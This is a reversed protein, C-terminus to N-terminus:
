NKQIEYDINTIEKVHDNGNNDIFIGQSINEVPFIRSLSMGKAMKFTKGISPSSSYITNKYCNYLDDGKPDIMVGIANMDGIALSRNGFSYDDNGKYDIFIGASLDRGSGIIQTLKSKDSNINYEDDGAKDIFNALSFHAAYGQSHSLANFEDDGSNDNFIGLGFYYSAGQSFSNAFYIDNGSADVFIGLGGALNQGDTAEAWRGKSSGQIFSPLDNKQENKTNYCDNGNSDILCGIGLTGGFAQSYSKCYYKDDGTLDILTASGFFAAGQSYNHNCTYIDNGCYDYLISTGFLSFALGANESFYEDSGSLDILASYGLVGAVLFGENNLYKDDGNFDIVIGITRNISITSAINGFYLDDGGLEVVILCNDKITDNKTGNILIKGHKTNIQCTSFDFKFDANKYKLFANLKESILRSAYSLKKLDIDDLLDILTFDLLEKNQWPKILAKYIEKTNIADESKLYEKLPNSFQNLVFSAKDIALYLEAIDKRLNTPLKSWESFNSKDISFGNLEIEKLLNEENNINIENVIVPPGFGGANSGLLRFPIHTLSQFSDFNLLSENISKSFDPIQSINNYYYSFAPIEFVVGQISSIYDFNFNSEDILFSDILPNYCSANEKNQIESKCSLIFLIIGLIILYNRRLIKIYVSDNKIYFM